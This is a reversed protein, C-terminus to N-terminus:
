KSAMSAKVEAEIEAYPKVIGKDAYQTYLDVCMQGFDASQEYKDSALQGAPVMRSVPSSRKAYNELSTLHAEFADNDLSSGRSYLVKDLEEDLVIFHSYQQYLDTVRQTREADVARQELAIVAQRQAAMEAVLAKNGEFLQQYRDSLASYQENLSNFEDALVNYREVMADSQYPLTQGSMDSGGFSQQQSPQPQPQMPAVPAQPAQPAAQQQMPDAQPMPQAGQAGQMQERVWQIEPMAQIAKVIALVDDQGLQMESGETQNPQQQQQDAQPASQYSSDMGSMDDYQDVAKSKDGLTPVYTGGAGVMAPAMYREIIRELDGDASYQAVPLPLRPSDAGLAAIPDFYSRRNDRFRNIEVSRRRKENLMPIGDALHHEDMFVAWKPDQNGVMGLRAAGAYGLVKPEPQDAVKMGQPVVMPKRITHRDCIASYNHTDCRQNQEDCIDALENFSYRVPQGDSGITEHEMFYCVDPVHRPCDKQFYRSASERIPNGNSRDWADWVAQNRQEYNPVSPLLEQHARFVFQRYSEGQKPKVFQGASTVM